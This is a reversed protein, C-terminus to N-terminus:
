LYVSITIKGRLNSVNAFKGKFGGFDGETLKKKHKLIRQLLCPKKQYVLDLFIKEFNKIEIVSFKSFNSHRIPNIGCQVTINGLKM